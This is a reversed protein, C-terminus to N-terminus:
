AAGGALLLLQTIRLKQEDSLPPAQAVLKEVRDIWFGERMKRRAEALDPDDPDRYRTLIAVRSREKQWTSV